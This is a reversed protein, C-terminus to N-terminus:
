FQFFSFLHHGTFSHGFADTWKVYQLLFCSCQSVWFCCGRIIRVLLYRDCILSSPINWLWIRRWLSAVHFYRSYVTYHRMHVSFAVPHPSVLRTNGNLVAMFLNRVVAPHIYDANRIFWFIHFCVLWLFLRMGQAISVLSLIHFHFFCCDLPWSINVYNFLMKM